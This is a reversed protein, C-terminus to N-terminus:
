IFLSLQIELKGFGYKQKVGFRIWTRRTPLSSLSRLHM